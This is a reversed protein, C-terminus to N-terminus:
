QNAVYQVCVFLFLMLDSETIKKDHLILHVISIPSQRYQTSIPIEIINLMVVGGGGWFFFFFFFFSVFCFLM